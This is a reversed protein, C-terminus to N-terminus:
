LFDKQAKLRLLPSAAYRSDGTLNFLTDLIQVFNSLKSKKSWELPGLPYNVGFKMATDLDEEEGLQDELSAYAENIILSIIRPFTFCIGPNKVKLFLINLPKFLNCFENELNENKLYLEYTENPSFIGAGISGSIHTYKNLLSEGWYLTLDTIIKSDRGKENLLRLLHNKKENSLLSLDLIWEFGTLELLSLDSSEEIISIDFQPSNSIKPFLQHDKSILLLIKNMPISDKKLKEEM